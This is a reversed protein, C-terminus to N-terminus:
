LFRCGPEYTTIGGELFAIWDKRSGKRLLLPLFLLLIYQMPMQQILDVGRRRGAFSLVIFATLLVVTFYPTPESLM